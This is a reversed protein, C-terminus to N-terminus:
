GPLVDKASAQPRENSIRLRLKLGKKPRKIEEPIMDRNIYVKKKLPTDLTGQGSKPNWIKVEGSIRANKDFTEMRRMSGQVDGVFQETKLRSPLEGLCGMQGWYYHTDLDIPTKYGLGFISENEFLRTEAKAKVANEIELFDLRILQGRLFLPSTPDEPHKSFAYAMFRYRNGTYTYYRRDVQVEQGKISKNVIRGEVDKKLLEMKFAIADFTAEAEDFHHCIDPYPKESM